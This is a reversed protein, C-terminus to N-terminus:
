FSLRDIIQLFLWLWVGLGLSNPHHDEMAEEQQIPAISIIKKLPHPLTSTNSFYTLSLFALKLM